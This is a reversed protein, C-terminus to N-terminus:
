QKKWPSEWNKPMEQVINHAQSRSVGFLFSLHRSNYGQKHLAFILERKKDIVYQEMETKKKGM